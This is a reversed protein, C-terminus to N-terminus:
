RLMWISALRSLINFQKKMHGVRILNCANQYTTHMEQQRRKEDEAQRKQKDRAQELVSVLRSIEVQRLMSAHVEELAKKESLNAYKLAHRYEPRKSIDYPVKKLEAANRRSFACLLFGFCASANQPDANLAKEFCERARAPDGDELFRMGRAVANTDSIGDPWVAGGTQSSGNERAPEAARTAGHEPIPRKALPAGSSPACLKRIDRLLDQIGGAEGLDRAQLTPLEEPLDRPNMNRYAPILTKDAGGQILALYRSWENQVWVARFHEATTGIVVMVKASQLAAFIYPEYPSGIKDELSTRAFFVRFGENTLREYVEQALISDRTRMGYADAEQNCLFIDYPEEKQSTRRMVKQLYDIAYAENRYLRKAYTDAHTLAQRYDEDALISTSQIRHCTPVRKRTKPDVVYEVGYRCLVLSWYAEADTHDERLIQEFLASARDYENNRRCENARDYQKARNDDCTQPLTQQSGCYQCVGVSKGTTAELSGGCLKCKLVM